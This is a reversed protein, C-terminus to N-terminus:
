SFYAYGGRGSEKVRYMASDAKNILTESEDGDTPYVSIGISVGIACENGKLTFPKSLAAIIKRALVSADDAAAIRACIGIFEDGGVRAVADSKRMCSVIRKSAEQLVLDGVEHGLTDNIVKFRDIDMYLVALLYRNRKALTLLQNMRDFFLTRNPLRTLSDYLALRMLRQEAKKRRTNTKSYAELVKNIDEALMGIEDGSKIRLRGRLDRKGESLASSFGQMMMGYEKVPGSIFGGGVIFTTTTVIVSVIILLIGIGVLIKWVTQMVDDVYIGSGIIWGWPKYLKVFSIKPAPKVGESKPWVYDIFGEGSDKAIKIGEEFVYKGNADTLSNISKGILDTKPHSLIKEYNNVWIYENGNAGFHMFEIRKKAREQAEQLTFEGQSVRQDYEAVVSYAIRVVDAVNNKKDETLTGKTLPLVYFLVGLMILGVALIPMLSIKWFVPWNKFKLYDQLRRKM